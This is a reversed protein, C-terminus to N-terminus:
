ISHPENHCKDNYKLISPEKAKQQRNYKLIIFAGIKFFGRLYILNPTVLCLCEWVLYKSSYTVKFLIPETTRQTTM